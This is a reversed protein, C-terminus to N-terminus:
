TGQSIYRDALLQVQALDGDRIKECLSVQEWLKQKEELDIKTHWQSLIKEYDLASIRWSKVAEAIQLVLDSKQTHGPDFIPQLM